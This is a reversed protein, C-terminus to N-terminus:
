ANWINWKFIAVMKDNRRNWLNDIDDSRDVILAGEEERRPSIGFRIQMEGPTRVAVGITPVGENNPGVPLDHAFVRAFAEQAAIKIVKADVWAVGDHHRFLGQFRRRQAVDDIPRLYERLERETSRSQIHNALTLDVIVWHSERLHLQDLRLGVVESRRSGCGPLLGLM